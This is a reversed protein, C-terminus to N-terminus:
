IQKIRNRKIKRENADNKLLFTSKYGKLSKAIQKLEKETEPLNPLTKLKKVDALKGRSFFNNSRNNMSLLSTNALVPNGIGLFNFVSSNNEKQKRLYLLAKPSTINTIAYKKIIWDFSKYVKWIIKLVVQKM